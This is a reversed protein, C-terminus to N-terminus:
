KDHRKLKKFFNQVTSLWSFSDFGLARLRDEARQLRGRWRGMREPLSHLPGAWQKGVSATPNRGGTIGPAQFKPRAKPLPHFCSVKGVRKGRSDSLWLLRATMQNLGRMKRFSLNLRLSSLLSKGLTDSLYLCLHSNFRGLDRPGPHEKEQGVDWIQTEPSLHQYCNGPPLGTQVQKELHRGSGQM